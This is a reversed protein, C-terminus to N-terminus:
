HLFHRHRHRSIDNNYDRSEQRVNSNVQNRLKRYKSLWLSVAGQLAPSLFISFFFMFPCFGSSLTLDTAYREM